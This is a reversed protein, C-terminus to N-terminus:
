DDDRTLEHWLMRGEAGPEVPPYGDQAGDFVAAPRFPSASVAATWTEPTWLTLEHLEEVVEGARDGALIEIRSRQWQRGAEVDVRETAWTVRLQDTEWQSSHAEGGLQLQVLYRAGPRLHRGMQDLHRGLEAPSLHALTNIPCVAGDFARRLDFATMDALVVKAAGQLRARALAVMPPSRDIGVAEVGRRALAELVRGSGCGPELVSRCESGLRGLLWEVEDGIDWRFALDYLEAHRQYLGTLLDTSAGSATGGDPRAPRARV